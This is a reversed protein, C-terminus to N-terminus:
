TFKGKRMLLVEDVEINPRHLVFDLHISAENEGGLDVNDGIAVHATGLAKEDYIRYGTPKMGHNIGMGFEAIRDKDGEAKDLLEQFEGEGREARFSVIRGREFRLELNKIGYERLEEVVLVGNASTELPAVYVEGSPVEVECEEGTSFCDELTGVEVRVSRGEISFALDTGKADYLHVRKRGDLESALAKGVRRLRSYDVDVAEAFSRLFQEYNIVVGEVDKPSPLNVLLRPRAKIAEHVEDWFAIVAEEVEAPLRKVDYFQSLWLIVDSEELLARLHKPLSAITDKSLNKGYKLFFEEDFTWLYPYAGVTYSERMIREALTKNHLGSIILVNFEEKLCAVRTVIVRAARGMLKEVPMGGVSGADVVLGGCVGPDRTDTM